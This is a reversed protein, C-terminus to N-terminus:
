GGDGEERCVTQLAQTNWVAEACRQRVIIRALDHPRVFGLMEMQWARRVAPIGASLILRLIQNSLTGKNGDVQAIRDVSVPSLMHWPM